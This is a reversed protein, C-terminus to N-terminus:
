VHCSDRKGFGPNFREEAGVVLIELVELRLEADFQSRLSAVYDNIARGALHRLDFAEERLEARQKM